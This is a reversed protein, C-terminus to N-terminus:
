QSVLVRSFGGAFPTGNDTATCKPLGFRAFIDRREVLTREPTSSSVVMVEFWKSKTDVVVLLMKEELPGAFDMHLREWCGQPEPWTVPDQRPPMPAAQQCMNYERSTKEIEGGMGTWWMLSRAYRKM